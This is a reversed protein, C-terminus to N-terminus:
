HKKGKGKEARSAGKRGSEPAAPESQTARGAGKRTARGAGEDKNCCSGDSSYWNYGPAHQECLQTILTQALSPNPALGREPQNCHNIGEVKVQTVSTNGGECTVAHCTLSGGRDGKGNGGGNSSKGSGISGKGSYGSAEGGSSKGSGTFGKSSGSSQGKGGSGPAGQGSGEGGSGSGSGTGAGQPPCMRESRCTSMAEGYSKYPADQPCGADPNEPAGISSPVCNQFTTGSCGVAWCQLGGKGSGTFGKSGGTAEGGGSGKGSGNSSFGKSSGSAEGGSSKGAAAPGGKAGGTATGGSSKSSPAPGGKSGNGGSAGQPPCKQGTRCAAVAEQSSAFPAAQPCGEEGTPSEDKVGECQQLNPGRCTYGWCSPASQAFAPASLSATVLAFFLAHRLPM